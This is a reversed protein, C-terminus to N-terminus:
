TLAMFSSPVLWRLDTVFSIRTQELFKRLVVTRNTPLGEKSVTALQFYKASALNKNSELSADLKSRWEVTM